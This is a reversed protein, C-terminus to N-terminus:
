TMVGRLFLLWSRLGLPRSRLALSAYHRWRPDKRKQLCSAIFYLANAESGPRWSGVGPRILAARQLLPARAEESVADRLAIALEASALQEARHRSSIDGVDLRAEYLVETTICIEGLAAM